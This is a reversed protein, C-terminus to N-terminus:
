PKFNSFIDSLDDNLNETGNSFEEEDITHEFNIEFVKPESLHAWKTYDDSDYEIGFIGKLFYYGERDIASSFDSVEFELIDSKVDDETLWNHMSPILGVWSSDDIVYKNRDVDKVIKLLANIFVYRPYPETYLDYLEQLFEKNNM